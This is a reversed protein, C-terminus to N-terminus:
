GKIEEINPQDILQDEQDVIPSQQEQPPQEYQTPPKLGLNRLTYNEDEVQINKAAGQLKNANEEAWLKENELVEAESLGGYRKLAFRKAFVPNNLAQTLTNFHATDKEIMRYEAFSEPEEMELSFRAAEIVVGIKQLFLKFEYDFTSSITNQIRKCSKAFRFEQMYSAGIKGDNYTTAGDEPGTPVYSSPVGLGRILQNNFYLLDNITGIEGGGPLIEVRSGKGEANVPFYYDDLMSNCTFVGAATAFTHYNHWREAKDITLTGTDITEDLYEIKIVKHNFFEISEKFHKWNKYGYFKIIGDVCRNSVMDTRIKSFIRLSQTSPTKPNAAEYLRMFVDDKSLGNITDVRNWDNNKVLTVIRSLMEHTYQRVQNETPIVYQIINKILKQKFAPNSEILKKKGLGSNKAWEAYAKPDNVKKYKHAAISRNKAASAIIKKKESPISTNYDRLSESIKQTIRQREEQTINIWFDKRNKIHWHIHDEKNMFQLNRPDNDYRNYNKHHITDKTKDKNEMLYTFQQHKGIRKFFNAVIRHTFKWKKEAHDFVQQYTRDTTASIGQFKTEFSILSDVNPIIDKAEVKGKGLIPFKHDPTVVLTNGNDLTLRIVQTNTRTIGAWSINGPVIEGTEPNCSYVWNEKGDKYESILAKLSMVRGDLLPIETDLSLCMPNYTADVVSSNGGTRSPIRRQQIENKFREIHAMARPGKLGGTDIFFVRRDPARQVRYIVMSDELLQKQKHVKFVPELLSPGFPWFPEMGTNMSFHVVHKAPIEQTTASNIFRSSQQSGIFTGSPYNNGATTITPVPYSGSTTMTSTITKAVINYDLDKFYYFEPSKGEIENVVVKEINKPDVFILEFTEPDRIFVCDGYQITKRVLPFIRVRFQNIYCWKNLSQYLTEKESDTCDTDKFDIFFPLKTNDCEQTCFEAITNLSTKIIPDFDMEEYQAYRQIRNPSGAYVEPLFSTFKKNGVDSPQNNNGSYNNSFTQGFYRKLTTM